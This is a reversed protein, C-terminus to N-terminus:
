GGGGCDGEVALVGIEAGAECCDISASSECSMGSAAVMAAAAALAAAADAVLPVPVDVENAAADADAADADLEEDAAGCSGGGAVGDCVGRWDPLM